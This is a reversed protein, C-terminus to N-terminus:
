FLQYSDHRSAILPSREDDPRAEQVFSARCAHRWASSIALIESLRNRGVSTLSLKGVDLLPRRLFADVAFGSDFALFDDDFEAADESDIMLRDAGASMGGSCNRSIPCESTSAM